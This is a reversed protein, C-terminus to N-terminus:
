GHFAPGPPPPTPATGSAKAQYQALVGPWGAHYRERLAEGRDGAHEWGRHELEVRTGGTQATFRVEVQQATDAHRGPHWTFVLRRPEEWTLITGWLSELGEATREFIRGGAQPELVCGVASRLGLSHTAMPWWEGMRRAFLDFAAAPALPVDVSRQISAISM